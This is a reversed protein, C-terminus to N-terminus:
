NVDDVLVFREKLESWEGIWSFMGCLVSKLLVGSGSVLLFVRIRLGMGLSFACWKIVHKKSSFVFRISESIEVNIVLSLKDSICHNFAHEESSVSMFLMDFVSPFIHLAGGIGICNWRVESCPPYRGRLSAFVQFSCKDM